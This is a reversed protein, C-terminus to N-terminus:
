REWRLRDLSKEGVEAMLRYRVQRCEGRQTDGGNNEDDDAFAAVLQVVATQKDNGNNNQVVKETQQQAEPNPFQQTQLRFFACGDGYLDAHLIGAQCAAKGVKMEGGIRKGDYWSCDETDPM